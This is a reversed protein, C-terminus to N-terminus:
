SSGPALLVKLHTRTRVFEWGLEFAELPLITQTFSSTDLAPLLALAEDFDRESSGVSGIVVKDYAVIREFSFPAREYPLGLLLIVAGARSGKLAAELAPQEGTAEVLVDFEQLHELTKSTGITPEVDGLRRDDQDFIVVTHGRHALVMACLRGLPGAGLVACTKIEPDDDRVRALRRLGKLTVALPECLCAKRQDIQAPVRHVFRGPAVIFESYGGNIGLVGLEARQECGIPFARRCEGCMGCGHICEIVVRDGVALRNIGPGIAAIYGSVEHGPVIPYKAIHDHYYGLTGAFVELDTRCIGVYTVKIAVDMPGVTPIAVAEISARGADHIVVANCIRSFGNNRSM